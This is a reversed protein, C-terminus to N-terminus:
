GRSPEDTNGEKFWDTMDAIRGDALTVMLRGECNEMAVIADPLEVFQGITEFSTPDESM